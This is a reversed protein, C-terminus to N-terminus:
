SSFNIVSNIRRLFANDVDTIKRYNLIALGKINEIEQLFYSNEINAYRDNADSVQTRKGFLADAEDFFLIHNNSVSEFIRDLNKETEGIYKSVIKSLDIRYVPMDFEKGILFTSLLKECSLNGHFVAIFGINLNKNSQYNQQIRRRGIIWNRINDLASKVNSSIMMDEWTLKICALKKLYAEDILEMQHKKM